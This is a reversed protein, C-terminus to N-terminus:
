NMVANPPGATASATLLFGLFRSMVRVTVILGDVECADLTAGNASAVTAAMRCPIGPAIGVAVDAGALASVDAANETVSKAVLGFYLPVALLVLGAIAGAIALALLSGSGDDRSM